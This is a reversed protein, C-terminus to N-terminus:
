RVTLVVRQYSTLAPSGADTGRLILHITQGPRADRPVRVRAAGDRQTVEVTGPYTGADTYQWWTATVADRDPDTVRGNLTVTRGPRVDRDLPGAVSVAPEHNVQSFAPTTTWKLRAAFDHQAARFWRTVAYDASATGDPGVDTGARGGWGGWSADTGARLGNDLLNMFISTDGESIWSGKEQLATWVIYGQERLQEATLGSFGFFDFIDGPVMQEGDGWVRYFPGFPGVESVNARTWAASLLEADQPLVARRAGYGWITTAMQRFEVDPWNPGIYRAYTDDQDGFSQIVAKRSVKRYIAPWQPTGEYRDKISKLARAITSQGAGTLLYLPGPEDDLLKRRILDSGPSDTSIDGDFAINGDLIKSKLEGPSPYGKAHARLNPYARAYLDVAEHIFREGPKWRWSTCPCLNLGPRDYERGPVFWTTGKGDGAWHVGSSAYLLAETDFENSYLLYRILTNQDDLEPDHMLIVRPRRDGGGHRADAFAASPLVGCALVAALACTLLRGPLTARM